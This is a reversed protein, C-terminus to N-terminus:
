TLSTSHLYLRLQEVHFAQPIATSRMHEVHFLGSRQEVHFM